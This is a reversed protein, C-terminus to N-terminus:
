LKHVLKLSIFTNKVLLQQNIPLNSICSRNHAFSCKLFMISNSIQVFIELGTQFNLFFLCM